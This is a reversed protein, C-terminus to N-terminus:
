LLHGSRRAKTELYGHNHRNPLTAHPVREVV